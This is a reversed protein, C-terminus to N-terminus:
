LNTYGGEEKLIKQAQMYLTYIDSGSYQPEVNFRNKYDCVINSYSSKAVCDRIMQLERVTLTIDIEKDWINPNETEMLQM